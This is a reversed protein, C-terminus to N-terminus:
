PSFNCLIGAKGLPLWKEPSLSEGTRTVPSSEGGLLQFSKSDESKGLTAYTDTRKILLQLRQHITVQGLPMLQFSQKYATAQGLLKPEKLKNEDENRAQPQMNRTANSNAKQQQKQRSQFSVEAADLDINTRPVDECAARSVRIARAVPHM